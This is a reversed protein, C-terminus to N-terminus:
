QAEQVARLQAESWQINKYLQIALEFKGQSIAQNLLSRGLAIADPLLVVLQERTM